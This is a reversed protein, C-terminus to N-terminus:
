RPGSASHSAADTGRARCSAFVTGRACRCSVSLLTRRRARLALDVIPCRRMAGGPEGRHVSPKQVLYPGRRTGGGGPEDRHLPPNKCMFHLDRTPGGEGPKARHLPPKQVLASSRRLVGRTGLGGSRPLGTPPTQGRLCESTCFGVSWRSSGPPPLSPSGASRTCFGGSWRPLGPPSAEARGSRAEEWRGACGADARLLGGVGSM